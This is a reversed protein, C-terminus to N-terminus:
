ACLLEINRSVAGRSLDRSDNDLNKVVKIQGCNKTYFCYFESFSYTARPPCRLRNGCVYLCVNLWGRFSPMHRHITVPSLRGLVPSSTTATNLRRSCVLLIWPKVSLCKKFLFLICTLIPHGHSLFRGLLHHAYPPHYSPAIDWFLFVQFQQTRKRFFRLLM